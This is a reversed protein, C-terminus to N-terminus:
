NYLYLNLFKIKYENIYNYRLFEIIDKLRQIQPPTKIVLNNNYKLSKELIIILKNYDDNNLKQRKITNLVDYLSDYLHAKAYYFILNKYHDYKIM